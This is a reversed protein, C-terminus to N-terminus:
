DHNGGRNVLYDEQDSTLCVCGNSSLYPSDECCSISTKNTEFINLRKPSSDNGDVSPGNLKSNDADKIKLPLSTGLFTNVEGENALKYINEKKLHDLCMGDYMGMPTTTKYNSFSRVKREKLNKDGEESEEGMQNWKDNEIELDMVKEKLGQVNDEEDLEKVKEELYRLRKKLKPLETDNYNNTLDSPISVSELSALDLNLNLPLNEMNINSTPLDDGLVDLINPLNVELDPYLELYLGLLEDVRPDNRDVSNGDDMSELESRLENLLELLRTRSGDNGGDVVYLRDGGADGGADDGVDDSADDGADDGADGSADDGADDGEDGGAAGIGDDPGDQSGEIIDNTFSNGKNKYIIYIFIGTIVLLLQINDKFDYSYLIYVYLIIIFVNMYKKLIDTFM